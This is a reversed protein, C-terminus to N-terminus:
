QALLGRQRQVASEGAVTADQHPRSGRPGAGCAFTGCSGGGVSFMVCVTLAGM